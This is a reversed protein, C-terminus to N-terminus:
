QPQAAKAEGALPATVVIEAGDGPRSHIRIEGDIERARERMGLLGFCGSPKDLHDAPDFGAGNDTVRLTLDGARFDIEVRIADPRGHKVANTIAETAIGLLHKELLPPLPRVNGATQVDVTFVGSANWSNAVRKLGEVLGEFRAPITEARLERIANRALARSQRLMQRAFQLRQRVPHPSGNLDTEMAKMQLSLGTLGQELTDHLERAIRGREELAAARRVHQEIVARKRGIQRRLAWVWGAVALLIACSIALARWLREPTWWSPAQLVKLDAPNSLLLLVSRPSYYWVDQLESIVWIGTVEVASNREPLWDLAGGQQLVGKFHHNEAEFAFSLAPGEPAWDVLRAEIRVLNSNHFGDLLERVTARVPAIPPGASVRRCMAGELVATGDAMAPFGVAEVVDGSEFAAPGHMEVKLGLNDDRLFFVRDSIQRTVVGRTRVRHPSAPELSFMLLRDLPVLPLAFPNAPPPRLVTVSSSDPLRLVPEVLQRQPNFRGGAVGHVRVVADIIQTPDIMQASDPAEPYGVRVRLREGGVALTLITGPAPGYQEFACVVGEVELWQGDLSGSAIEGYSVRLPEPLVGAGLQVVDRLDISPAFSGRRTTGVVRVRDGRRLRKGAESEGVHIGLEGDHVFFDGKPATWIVVGEIRVPISQGALEPSKKVDAIRTLLAPAGSAGAAADAAVRVPACWFCVFASGFAALRRPFPNAAFSVAAFVRACKSYGSLPHLSM